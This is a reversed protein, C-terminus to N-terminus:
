DSLTKKRPRPKEKGLRYTGSPDPERRSRCGRVDNRLRGPPTRQHRRGGQWDLGPVRGHSRGRQRQPVSRHHTRSRRCASRLEWDVLALAVGDALAFTVYRPSVFDTELELLDSYFEVSRDIDTVYVIFVIERNM